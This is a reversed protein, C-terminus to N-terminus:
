YFTFMGQAVEEFEIDVCINHLSDSLSNRELSSLNETSTFKLNKASRWRRLM